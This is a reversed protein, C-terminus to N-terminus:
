VRSCVDRAFKLDEWAKRKDAPTRLLYAPHYTVVLPVQAIGFRHVQRRLTGLTKDTRLLNQAAIRGVALMIKPKLLAIQRELYPLCEAAETPGPDRNGPPRCKLVNAIYVRERPLGIAQLMSNLLQGARGVFPEGRRDEEAGPAEGVILWDAHLNGVGFVTQTRTASLSCRTCAAVRARLEGWDAGAERLAATDGSRPVGSDASAAPAVAAAPTHAEGKARLTWSTLGLATLYEQRLGSNM